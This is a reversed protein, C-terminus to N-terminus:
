RLRSRQCGRPHPRALNDAGQAAPDIRGHRCDQEMLRDAILQVADVDVVAQHPLSLRLLDELREAVSVLDIEVVDVRGVTKRSRRRPTVSGSRFRFIM